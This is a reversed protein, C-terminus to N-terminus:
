INDSVRFAGHHFFTTLHELTTSILYFNEIGDIELLRHPIVGEFIDITLVINQFQHIAQHFIGFTLIALTGFIKPRTRCTRM